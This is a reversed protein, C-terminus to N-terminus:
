SGAFNCVHSKKFTLADWLNSIIHALLTYNPPFLFYLLAWKKIM